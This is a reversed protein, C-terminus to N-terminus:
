LAAGAAARRRAEWDDRSEGVAPPTGRIPEAVAHEKPHKKIWNRVVGPLVDLQEAVEAVGVERAAEVAAAKVEDPFSRRPRKAAATKTKAPGHGNTKSVSEPPAERPAPVVPAGVLEALLRRAEELAAVVARAKVLRADLEDANVDLKITIEM